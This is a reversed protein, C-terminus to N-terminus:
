ANKDGTPASTTLERWARKVRARFSYDKAPIGGLSRMLEGSMVFVQDKPVNPNEIIPIDLGFLKVGDMKGVLRLMSMLVAVSISYSVLM